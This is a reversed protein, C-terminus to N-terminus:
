SSDWRPPAAFRDARPRDAFLLDALHPEVPYDEGLFFRLCPGALRRISEYDLFAFLFLVATNLEDL